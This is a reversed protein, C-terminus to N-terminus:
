IVSPDLTSFALLEQNTEVLAMDEEKLTLWAEIGEGDRSSLLFIFNKFTLGSMSVWLPKGWGFDLKYFPLRFWSSCNYNDVEEENTILKRCELMAKEIKKKEDLTAPYIKFFNGALNEPLPPVTRARINVTQSFVSTRM